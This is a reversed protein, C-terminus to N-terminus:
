NSNGSVGEGDKGRVEKRKGSCRRGLKVGKVERERTRM